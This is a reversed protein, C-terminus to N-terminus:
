YEAPFYRVTYVFPLCTSMETSFGELSKMVLEVECYMGFYHMPLQIGNGYKTSSSLKTDDLFFSTAPKTMDEANGEWKTGLGNYMDKINARMFTFYVRDGEKAKRAPDGTSLVRMYVYGDKDMKYFPADPGTEFVSDEPIRTEIEHQALYWNVAQEEEKLLDSYSKTDNCSVMSTLLTAAMMVLATLRKTTLKM